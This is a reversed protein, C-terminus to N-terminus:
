SALEYFVGFEASSPAPNEPSGGGIKPAAKGVGMNSGLHLSLGSRGGTRLCGRKVNGAGPM